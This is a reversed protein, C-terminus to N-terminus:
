DGPPLTRFLRCVCVCMVDTASAASNIPQRAERRPSPLGCCCVCYRVAKGFVSLRFPARRWRCLSASASFGITEARLCWQTRPAGVQGRSRLRGLGANAEFCLCLLIMTALGCRAVPFHFCFPGRGVDGSCSDVAAVESSRQEHRHVASPRPVVGGEGGCLGRHLRHPRRADLAQSSARVPSSALPLVLPMVLPMVLCQRVRFRPASRAVTPVSRERDEPCLQLSLLMV